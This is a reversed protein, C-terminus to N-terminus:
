LDIEARVVGEEPSYHQRFGLKDCVRLMNRNEPLIDGFIKKLKEDRGIDMLRKLLEVGLGRRHWNDSVLIAFEAEKSGHIKNLRGVGLIEPEGTPSEKRQVVLAMERDYDIFCNRTLRDHAIRQTLQMAHFFRFYVSRDSLTEHFKVMLPEDEPRIPRITVEKGDPMTWPSIYRTPYPRIALKPLSERAVDRDHLIIRADLAVIRDSAALLPNIDIEKIWRQEAVLLSFNVFIQELVALDFSRPMQQLAKYVNTQEM